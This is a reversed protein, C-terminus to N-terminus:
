EDMPMEGIKGRDFLLYLKEAKGPYLYQFTCSSQSFPTQALFETPRSTKQLYTIIAARADANTYSCQQDMRFTVIWAFGIALGGLAILALQRRTGRRKAIIIAHIVAGIIGLIVTLFIVLLGAEPQGGTLIALLFGTLFSFGIWKAFIKFYTKASTPREDKKM